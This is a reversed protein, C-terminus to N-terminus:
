TLDTCIKTEISNFEDWRICNWEKYAGKDSDIMYNASQLGANEAHIGFGSGTSGIYGFTTNIGPCPEEFKLTDSFFNM